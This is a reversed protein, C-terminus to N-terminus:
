TQAQRFVLDQVQMVSDLISPGHAQPVSPPGGIFATGDSPLHAFRFRSARALHNARPSPAEQASNTALETEVRGFLAEVVHQRLDM